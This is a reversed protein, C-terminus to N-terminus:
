QRLQRWRELRPPEAPDEREVNRLWFDLWDIARTQASLIQNPRWKVHFAGPYLYTEIPRGLESLRTALAFGMLAESEPLNMLLPTTIAEAHGVTANSAWWAAWPSAPPAWPGEAGIDTLSRRFTASGLTWATTDVPPTSVVAAAFLDTRTIMWFVTEAGDSLGTIGIRAPDSLGRQDLIQLMAELATQKMRNESGDLETRIMLEDASTQAEAGRWEPRDVSLVFYGRGALAHIPYENGVGGRLFGRSRYQVIVVPYRRGRRYNAPYVLHAYADNGYADRVEIREVRTLDIQDWDPNPDYIATLAGSALDIRVLRRPQLASEQFCILAGAAHDCGFLEEDARRIRRLTRQDPSWAYLATLSESHGEMRRFIIEGGIIWIDLLRGTCHAFDCARIEEGDALSTYVGLSPSAARDAPTRPGIWAVAREARDLSIAANAYPPRAPGALRQAEEPSAARVGGTALDIVSVTRAAMTLGRPRLSYYPEFDTDAYFGQREHQATLRRLEERPTATEVIMASPSLWAFRLVDADEGAVRVADGGDRSARWLEARGDRGILYALASGDPSWRPARDTPAGSFRGNNSGLILGGADAVPRAAGDGAVVMLRYHYADSALDTEREMFAVTMEDPSVALGSRYDGLDRLSLLDEPTPPRAAAIASLWLTLGALAAARTLRM